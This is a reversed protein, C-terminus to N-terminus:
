GQASLSAVEQVAQEVAQTQLNMQTVALTIEEVAPSALSPTTHMRMLTSQISALTQQLAEQQATVRQLNQEIIRTDALRAECMRLSQQLAQLTVPDDTESLRQIFGARSAELMAVSHQSIAKTLRQHQTELHRNNAMLENLRLLIGRATNEKVRGQLAILLSVTETYLYEMPSLNMLAGAAFIVDSPLNTRCSVLLDRRLTHWLSAGSILLSLGLLGGFLWTQSEFRMGVMICLYGAGVPVFNLWGAGLWRHRSLATLLRKQEETKETQLSNPSPAVANLCEGFAAAVNSDLDNLGIAM